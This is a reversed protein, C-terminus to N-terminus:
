RHDHHPMVNSRIPPHLGKAGRNGGIRRRDSCAPTLTAAVMTSKGSAAARTSASSLSAMAELRDGTVILERHCQGGIPQELHLRDAAIDHHIEGIARRWRLEIQVGEAAIELGAEPLLGLMLM